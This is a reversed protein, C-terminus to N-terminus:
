NQRSVSFQAARSPFRAIINLDSTISRFITSVEERNLGLVDTGNISEIEYGPRLNSSALIGDNKTNEVVVGRSTVSYVIGLKSNPM